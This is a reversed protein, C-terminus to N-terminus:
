LNDIIEAARLARRIIYRIEPTMGSSASLRFPTGDLFALSLQYVYYEGDTQEEALADGKISMEHTTTEKGLSLETLTEVMMCFHPEDWSSLYVCKCLGKTFFPYGSYCDVLEKFRTRHGSDEFMKETDLAAFCKEKWNM